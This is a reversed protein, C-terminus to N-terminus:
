KSKVNKRVHFSSYGRYVSEREVGSTRNRRNGKSVLMAHVSRENFNGYNTNSDRPRSLKTNGDLSQSFQVSYHSSM